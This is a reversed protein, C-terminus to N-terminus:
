ITTDFKRPRSVPPQGTESAEVTQNGPARHPPIEAVNSTCGRLKMLTDTVRRGLQGIAEDTLISRANGLRDVSVSLVTLAEKLQAMEFQLAPNEGSKIERLSNGLTRVEVTLNRLNALVGKSPLDVKSLVAETMTAAVNGAFQNIQAIAVLALIAAAIVLIATANILALLLQGPLRWLRASIRNRDPERM